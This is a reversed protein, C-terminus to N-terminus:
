GPQESGATGDFLRDLQEDDIDELAALIDDASSARSTTTRDGGGPADEPSAGTVVGDLYGALAEVTPYDFVVVAPLPGALGLGAGLVNRLEVAMLSDLGMESLPQREAVVGPSSSGLVRAVQEAVFDLLMQHRREPDAAALDAVDLLTATKTSSTPGSDVRADAVDALWTPVPAGASRDFFARWDFAAIAVGPLGHAMAARLADLALAPAMPEVGRRDSRDESAAAAGTDSWAGWNISLAPAGRARRGAALADM